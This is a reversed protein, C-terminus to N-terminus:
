RSEQDDGDANMLMIPVREPMGDQLRRGDSTEPQQM